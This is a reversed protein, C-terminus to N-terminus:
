QAHGLWPLLFSRAALARIDSFQFPVPTLDDAQEQRVVGGPLPMPTFDDSDNIVPSDPM